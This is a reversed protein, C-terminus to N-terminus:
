NKVSSSRPSAAFRSELWRRAQTVVRRIPPLRLFLLVGVVVAYILPLDIFDRELWLFHLVALPLALYVLRHLTRWRKGLRRQWGRTSTAALPLLLLFAAMGVIMARRETIDRVILSIELANELVAYTILHLAVYLVGYLGLARRIQTARHWGSVISVPTCAFSAVLFILGLSGTRLMLTRNGLPDDQSYQTSLWLLPLLGAAHAIVRHWNDRFWQM